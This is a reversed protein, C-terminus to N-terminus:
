RMIKLDIPVCVSTMKVMGQEILLQAPDDRLEKALDLCEKKSINMAIPKIDIELGNQPAASMFIAILVYKIM